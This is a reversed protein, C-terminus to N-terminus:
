DSVRVKVWGMPYLAEALNRSTGWVAKGGPPKPNRYVDITVSEVGSFRGLRIIFSREDLLMDLLETSFKEVESTQYFMKHEYEMKDRYFNKCSKIIQEVTFIKSLFKTAFLEEDFSIVTDFKVQRGTISSHSVECIIQIDNTQLDGAKRKSANRVERVIMDDRQLSQDRIKIARFPDDKGDKYGLVKSEFGYEEKIDKPRPLNSQKALESVIATRLAGKISSGPILTLYEGQTRIFPHILLQNQIESLKLRYLREVTPTVEISYASDKDKNINEAVYTRIEALNGKTLLTEFRLREADNMLTVFKIFSIKYLRGGEIIYDLPDIEHGTGIHIPSLIECKLKYKNM